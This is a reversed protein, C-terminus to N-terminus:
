ADGPVVVKAPEIESVKPVQEVTQIQRGIVRIEGGDPFRVQAEEAQWRISVGRWRVHIPWPFPNHGRLTIKTPSILRVGLVYLMLSLPAVGASHGREGLGGPRDAFYTERTSRQERLSAICARMLKGVLEAAQELYGYDVLGEGILVNPLMTLTAAPAARYARDQASCGPIGFERWFKDARLVTEQVLRTARSTEPVGAWLPLLCCQDQRRFDPIRIEVGTGKGIGRVEVRELSAYTKETTATGLPGFWTFRRETVREIRKRQARGSGHVFIQVAHREGEKAHVRFLLRSAPELQKGLKLNFEGKSGGLRRGPHSTHLERDRHLYSADAESWAEEVSSQLRERWSKLEGGSSQEDLTREMELLSGIERLLYAALDPTEAYSVDLGQGWDRWRVFSPWDDFGSQLTHDWEPFGDQDRDHRKGFWSEVFSSLRPYVRALFERDETHQYIRWALTSLLPISLAGNRQGGLGPKWDISGDPDQVALYNLVVGKALEPAAPLIQLANLLAHAATQGNWHLDYDRGDPRASYGHDPTRVQVGAPSPLSRTPGVFSSLSISQAVALAADWDPDGTELEVLGSNAHEVRAIEADWNLAALRRAAQFSAELEPLASHAWSFSESGGPPLGPKLQLAPYPAIAATAGGSLFVLPALPGTEGILVLAGQHAVSTMSRGGETPRLVAHLLLAPQMAQRGHNTLTLRGGLLNSEAVWYEAIVELEPFPYFDLRLYNPLFLRVEPPRHYRSPDLLTGEEVRFGPFIRMSRARRGYSTELALASPEGGGIRLEWIQDDVYNPRTLRADAAIILSLPAGAGLSWERM